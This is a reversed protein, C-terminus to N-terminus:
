RRCTVSASQYHSGDSWWYGSVVTAPVRTRTRAELAALDAKQFVVAWVQDGGDTNSFSLTTGKPNTYADTVSLTESEAYKVSPALTNAGSVTFGTCKLRTSLTEVERVDSVKVSNDNLLKEAAPSNESQAASALGSSFVAFVSLVFLGKTMFGEESFLKPHGYRLKKRM